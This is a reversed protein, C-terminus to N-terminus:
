RIKAIRRGRGCAHCCFPLLARREVQHLGRPLPQNPSDANSPPHSCIRRELLLCHKSHLQGGQFLVQGYWYLCSILLFYSYKIKCLLLDTTCQLTFANIHVLLCQILTSTGMWGLKNSFVQGRPGFTLM